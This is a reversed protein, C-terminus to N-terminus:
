TVLSVPRLLATTRTSVSPIATATLVFHQRSPSLSPFPSLTKHNWSKFGVMCGSLLHKLEFWWSLYPSGCVCTTLCLDSVHTSPLLQLPNCTLVLICLAKAHYCRRRALGDVASLVVFGLVELSGHLVNAYFFFVPFSSASYSSFCRRRRATSSGADSDM